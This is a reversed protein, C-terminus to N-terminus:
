DSILRFEMMFALSHTRQGTDFVATHWSRMGPPSGCWVCIDDTDIHPYTSPKSSHKCGRRLLLLLLMLLMLLLLLLLLM